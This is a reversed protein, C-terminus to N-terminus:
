ETILNRRTFSPDVPATQRNVALHSVTSFGALTGVSDYSFNPYGNGFEDANNPVVRCTITTNDASVALIKVRATASADDKSVWGYTGPYILAGDAAAVTLTNKSSGTIAVFADPVSISPM